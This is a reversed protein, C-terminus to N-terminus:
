EGMLVVSPARKLRLDMPSNSAQIMTMNAMASLTRRLSDRGVPEEGRADLGATKESAGADRQVCGRVDFRRQAKPGRDDHRLDDSGELEVRGAGRAGGDVGAAAGGVM